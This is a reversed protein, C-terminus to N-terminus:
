PMLIWTSRLSQYPVQMLQGDCSLINGRTPKVKVSDKKQLSAVEMWYSRKATMTYITKGLVALAILSMVIAIVSYRPIIKNNNFKSMKKSRPYM